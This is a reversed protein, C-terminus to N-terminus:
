AAGAWDDWEDNENEALAARASDRSERARGAASIALLREGGNAHGSGTFVWGSRDRAPPPDPKGARTGPTLTRSTDHGADTARNHMAQRWAERRARLADMTTSYRRTKTTIHGRYGLTHLWRIMGAYGPHEALDAVTHLIARVHERIELRDIAEVSM